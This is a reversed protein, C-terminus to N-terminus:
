FNEEKKLFALIEKDGKFCRFGFKVNSINKTEYRIKGKRINSKIETENNLNWKIKEVSM